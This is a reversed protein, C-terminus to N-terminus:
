VHFQNLGTSISIEPPDGVPLPTEWMGHAIPATEEYIFGMIADDM